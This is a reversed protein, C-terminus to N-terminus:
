NSEIMAAPPLRRMLDQLKREVVQSCSVYEEPRGYPDDVAWSEFKVSAPIELETAVDSELAVILDYSSLSVYRVDCPMHGSADIGYREKLTKIAMQADEAQQPCLGASEFHARGGFLHRGIHKAFVSRCTNGCCIFLVRPLRTM